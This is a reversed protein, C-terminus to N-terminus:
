EIDVKFYFPKVKLITEKGGLAQYVNEENEVIGPIEVNLLLKQPVEQFECENIQMRQEVDDLNDDEM